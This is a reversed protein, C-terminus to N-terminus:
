GDQNHRSIVQAIDRACQATVDTCAANGVVMSHEIARAALAESLAVASLEINDLHDRVNAKPPLNRRYRIKWARDGIIEVYIVETCSVYGKATVGHDKLVDTYGRRNRRSHARLRAWQNHDTM